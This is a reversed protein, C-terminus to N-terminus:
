QNTLESESLYFIKGSSCDVKFLLQSKQSKIDLEDAEVRQCQGSALAKQAALRRFKEIEPLRNEFQLVLTPLKEPHYPPIAFASYQRPNGKILAQTIVSEAIADKKRQAENQSLMQQELEQQQQKQQKQKKNLERQNQKQTLDVKTGTQINM